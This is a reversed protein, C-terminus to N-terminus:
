GGGRVSQYAMGILGIVVLFVLWLYQTGLFMYVLGSGITLGILIPWKSWHTMAGLLFAPLLFLLLPILFGAVSAILDDYTGTYGGTYPLTTSPTGYVYFISDWNTSYVGWGAAGNVLMVGEHTPTSADANYSTWNTGVDGYTLASVYVCIAYTHNFEMTYTGDFNFTWLAKASSDGLDASEVTNTSTALAPGTPATGIGTTAYLSAKMDFVPNSNKHLYFVAQELYYTGTCNFTQGYGGYDSDALSYIKQGNDYNGESYSSVTTLAFSQSIGMVFLSLLMIVTLALTKKNM